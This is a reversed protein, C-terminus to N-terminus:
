HRNEYKFKNFASKQQISFKLNSIGAITARQLIKQANQDQLDSDAEMLKNNRASDREEPPNRVWTTAIGLLILM